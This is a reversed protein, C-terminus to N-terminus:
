LWYTRHAPPITCAASFARVSDAAQPRTTIFHAEFEVTPRGPATAQQVVLELPTVFALMLDFAPNQLAGELPLAQMPYATLAHSAQVAM